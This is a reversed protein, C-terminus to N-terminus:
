IALRAGLVDGWAHVHLVCMCYVCAVCVHLVCMCCVCAVCVHLIVCAICVHLVCMCYVCAICPPRRHYSSHGDPLGDPCIGGRAVQLEVGSLGQLSDGLRLDLQLSKEARVTAVRRAQDLAFHIRYSVTLVATPVTLVATPVTLVAM